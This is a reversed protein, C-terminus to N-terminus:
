NGKWIVDQVNIQKPVLKLQHFTNAIEQQKAIVEDTLPLIGYDRRKEAVELAVEPINLQPSLIKAVEQSNSKAWESQKTLEDLLKKLIDPHQDVLTQAALYYGRNPALGTADVLIRAGSAQEVAALFPDWIAWADVSKGEFAARADAPPLFVHEVDEYKLGASELAKVVLYNANSGKAYAIKKGKLDAVSKIPSDQPVVIAEAQTSLPDYAVYRLPTGAAQAFIPPTEGTYGFDIAGAAMAELMPPGAPFETWTVSVGPDGLAKELEGKAKITNLITAAKQFGIRLTVNAAPSSAPSAATNTPAPESSCSALLFSISVGAAFLAAFVRRSRRSFLQKLNSVLAPLLSLPKSPLQLSM